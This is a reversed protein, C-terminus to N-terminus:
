RRSNLATIRSQAYIVYGRQIEPPKASLYKRYYKLANKRDKLAGDYLSAVAYITLPKEEFQLAKQYALLAKKDKKLTSYSDAIESYYNNINPSIGADIAKNFYEIAKVQNKLEKYCSAIFYFTGETQFVSQIASLTEIGCNYNKLYYYAEGVKNRIYASNDGLQFLAEGNTVVENWKHQAYELKVLSQILYINEPDATIAANLVGEAQAFKKAEIYFGSLQGAVDADTPQLKNAKGLFGMTIKSDGDDLSIQAMDKFVIFNTSDKQLLKTFYGKAKLNNGKRMNINGLSFLVRTNTTDSEYIRLYYTEADALRGAMQSTYAMSSLVKMDTVPEPHASRLYNLADNYRQAQYYEVLQDSTAQDKEQANAISIMFLLLMLSHLFAKM